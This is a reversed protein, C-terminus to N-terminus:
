TESPQRPSRKGNKKSEIGQTKNAPNHRSLRHRPTCLENPSYFAFMSPERRKLENQSALESVIESSTIDAKGATSKAAELRGKMKTASGASFFSPATKDETGFSAWTVGAERKSTRGMGSITELPMRAKSANVPPQGRPHKLSIQPGADDPRVPM